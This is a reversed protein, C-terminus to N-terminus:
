GLGSEVVAVWGLGIQVQIESDMLLLGGSGVWQGMQPEVPSVVRRILDVVQLVQLDYGVINRVGFSLAYQEGVAM